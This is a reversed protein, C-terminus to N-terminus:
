IMENGARFRNIFNGNSANKWKPPFSIFKKGEKRGLRINYDPLWQETRFLNVLRNGYLALDESNNILCWLFSASQNRCTTIQVSFSKGDRSHYLHDAINRLERRLDWDSAHPQSINIRQTNQWGWSEEEITVLYPLVHLTEPKKQESLFQRKWQILRYNVSHFILSCDKSAWIKKITLKFANENSLTFLSLSIIM